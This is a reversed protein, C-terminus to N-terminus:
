DPDRIEGSYVGIVESVRFLAVFVEESGVRSVIAYSGTEDPHSLPGAVYKVAHGVVTVTRQDRLLVTFRSADHHSTQSFRMELHQADPTNAFTVFCSSPAVPSGGTQAPFVIEGAGGYPTIGDPQQEHCLAAVRALVARFVSKPVPIELVEDADAGLRRVSCHGEHFAIRLQHLRCLDLLEDVLGVVGRAKPEFAKQVREAFPTSRIM